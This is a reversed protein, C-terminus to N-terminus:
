LTYKSVSDVNSPNLNLLIYLNGDKYKLLCNRYRLYSLRKFEFPDKFMFQINKLKSSSVIRLIDKHTVVCVKKALNQNNAINELHSKHCALCSANPNLLLFFYDKRKDKDRSIWDVFTDDSVINQAKISNGLICILFVSLTLLFKM